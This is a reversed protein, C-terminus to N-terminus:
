KIRVESTATATVPPVCTVGRDEGWDNCGPPTQCQTALDNSYLIYRQRGDACQPQCAHPELVGRNYAYNVTIPEGICPDGDGASDGPTGHVVPGTLAQVMLIGLFASLLGITAREPNFSM